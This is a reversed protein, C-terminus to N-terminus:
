KLGGVSLKVDLSTDKLLHNIEVQQYVKTLTPIVQMAVEYPTSTQLAKVVDWDNTNCIWDYLEKLTSLWTTFVDENNTGYLHRFEVTGLHNLPKINFATYKHWKSHMTTIDNKYHGPLYTFNLPVCFISNARKDGVFKFLIPELLAYTLVFQRTQNLTLQSVNVHVHTSTRDTFPAPGVKLDKHLLKFLELTHSYTSPPTKFEKGNNRLSSDEEIMFHSTITAGLAKVDEIEFECGCTFEKSNFGNPSFHQQITTM